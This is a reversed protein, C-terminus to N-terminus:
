KKNYKLLSCSNIIPLESYYNNIKIDWNGNKINISKINNM